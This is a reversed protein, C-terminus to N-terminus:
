KQKTIKGKSKTTKKTNVSQKYNKAAKILEKNAEPPNEMIAYLHKTAETSLQISEKKNKRFKMPSVYTYTRVCANKNLKKIIIEDGNFLTVVAVESKLIFMTEKACSSLYGERGRKDTYEDVTVNRSTHKTGNTYLFMIKKYFKGKEFVPVHQEYKIEM